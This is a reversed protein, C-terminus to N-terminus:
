FYKRAGEIFKFFRTWFKEDKIDPGQVEGLYTVIWPRILEKAEAETLQFYKVMNEFQVFHLEPNSLLQACFTKLFQIGAKKIEPDIGKEPVPVLVPEMKLPEEKQQIVVFAKLDKYSMM